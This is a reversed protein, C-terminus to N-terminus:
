ISRLVAIAQRLNRNLAPLYHAMLEHAFVLFVAFALVPLLAQVETADKSRVIWLAFGTLGLFFLDALTFITKVPAWKRTQSLIWCVGGTLFAVVSMLMCAQLAVGLGIALTTSSSLLCLVTLVLVMGFILTRLSSPLSDFYSEDQNYTNLHVLLYYRTSLVFVLASVAGFVFDRQTAPLESMHAPVGYLLYSLVNLILGIALAVLSGWYTPNLQERSMELAGAQRM